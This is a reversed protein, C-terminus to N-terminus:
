CIKKGGSSMTFGSHFSSTAQSSYLATSTLTQDLLYLDSMYTLFFCSFFIGVIHMLLLVRYSNHM